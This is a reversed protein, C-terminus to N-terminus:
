AAEPQKLLELKPSPPALAKPKPASGDDQAPAPPAAPTTEIVPIRARTCIERADVRLNYPALARNASEIANSAASIATAEATLDGPPKTDWAVSLRAGGGFLKNVVPRLAQDNLTAALSDGDGQILDSRITAHIDANAFGAGGTITVIQGALFIMFEKDCADITHQFVQYGEGKLEILKVDWGPPLEFATNIGWAILRQLFGRRQGETAGQPSVAARAPNALKGSYNERYNFAHDKAIFSRALAPWLGNQWPNQYGATHLVWRGDGPVIREPGGVTDYYWADDGWQYRLYEPDLRVFVPEIRDPLPVLEGLGVGLTLKDGQFLSLEDPNFIRQFLGPGAEHDEFARIVSETGRLQRPLRILGSTRTGLIGGLTGDRRLSRTLRAALALFGADAALSADEIDKQYWRTVTRVPLPREKRVHEPDNAFASPVPAVRYQPLFISAM